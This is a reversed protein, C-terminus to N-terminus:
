RASCIDMCVDPLHMLEDSRGQREQYSFRISPASVDIHSISVTQAEQRSMFPSSQRDQADIYFHFKRLNDITPKNATIKQFWHRRKQLVRETDFGSTSIPFTSEDVTQTTWHQGNWTSIQADEDPHICLLFFPPYNAPDLEAIHSKLQPYPLAAFHWLIQGRSQPAQPQYEIGAAYHNLIALTIGDERVALWTGAGQPDRPAIFNLPGHHYLAPAQAPPRDISEDRNFWLSYSDPTRRTWTVTCM